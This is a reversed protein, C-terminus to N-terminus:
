PCGGLGSCAQVTGSPWEIRAVYYQDGDGSMTFNYTQVLVGNLYINLTGDTDGYNDTTSGTYDHVMVQYWGDYPALAPDTININEPGTGPIDDLDLYPNDLVNGAVGWDLALSACNGFYCDSSTNPTGQNGSGDNAELLHLDFDDQESWFLEVRFNEPPLVQITQTCTDSVGASDTVTLTGEYAGVLDVYPSTTPTATNAGALTTTSGPPRTTLVWAHQLSLTPVIGGTHLSFSDLQVVELPNAFITGGCIAIPFGGPGVADDDDTADDDDGPDPIDDPNAIGYVPVRLTPEDADNSTIVLNATHIGQAQPSYTVTVFDYQGQGLSAGGVGGTDVSFHTAPEIHITGVVLTGPGANGVLVQETPDPLTLLTTGFDVIEPTTYIDPVPEGEGTGLIPIYLGTGRDAGCDWNDQHKVALHLGEELPRGLLPTFGLRLSRANEPLLVGPPFAPSLGLELHQAVEVENTVNGDADFTAVVLAVECIELSGTGTNAITVDISKFEGTTVQGLQLVAQSYDPDWGDQSSWTIRFEPVLVQLAEDSCGSPALLATALLVSLLLPRKM